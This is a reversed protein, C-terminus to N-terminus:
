LKHTKRYNILKIMFYRWVWVRIEEDPQFVSKRMWEEFFAEPEVNCIMSANMYDSFVKHALLYLAMDKFKKYDENEIKNKSKMDILCYLKVRM